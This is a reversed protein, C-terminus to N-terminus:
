NRGSGQFSSKSQQLVYGDSVMNLNAEDTMGRLPPDDVMIRAHQDPVFSATTEIMTDGDQKHKPDEHLSLRSFIGKINRQDENRSQREVQPVRDEMFSKVSRVVPPCILDDPLWADNVEPM